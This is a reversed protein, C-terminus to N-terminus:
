LGDELDAVAAELQGFPTPTHPPPARGQGELGSLGLRPCTFHGAVVWIGRERGKEKGWERDKM